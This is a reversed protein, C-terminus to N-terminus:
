SITPDTLVLSPPSPRGGPPVAISSVSKTGSLAVRAPTSATSPTGRRGRATDGPFLSEGKRVKLSRFAEGAVHLTDAAGRRDQAIAAWREGDEISAIVKSVNGNPGGTVRWYDRAMLDRIIKDSRVSWSTLTAVPIVGHQIMFVTDPHTHLQGVTRLGFRAERRVRRTLRYAPDKQSPIVVLAPDYDWLLKLWWPSPSALRYPNPGEIWNEGVVETM